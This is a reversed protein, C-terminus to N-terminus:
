VERNEVVWIKVPVNSEVISKAYVLGSVLCGNCDLELCVGYTDFRGRKMQIATNFIRSKDVVEDGVYNTVFCRATEVDIEKLIRIRKVAM